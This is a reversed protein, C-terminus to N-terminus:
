ESASPSESGQLFRYFDDLFSVWMDGAYAIVAVLFVSAALFRALWAGPVSAPSFDDRPV